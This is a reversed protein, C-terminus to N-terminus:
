KELNTIVREKNNKIIKSLSRKLDYIEQKTLYSIEYKLITTHSKKSSITVYLRKFLPVNVVDYDIVKYKPFEDSVKKEVFPIISRNKFNVAEGDSEYEFIQKGALLYVILILVPIIILLFSEAGLVDFRYRELLFACIGGLLIMWISSNIFNYLPIKRRNSLRM